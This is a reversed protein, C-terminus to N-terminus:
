YYNNYLRKLPDIPKGNEWIEFHLYKNDKKGIIGIKEGKKIKQGIEAYIKDLGQYKSQINEHHIIIFNGKLKEYGIDEVIGNDIAVVEEDYPKIDIGSNNITINSSKEIRGFNRYLKGAIPKEVNTELKDENLNFVNINNNSKEKLGKFFEVISKSNEIFDYDYKVTKDVLEVARQTNSTDIKKLVIICLIIIICVIIKKLQSLYFNKNKRNYYYNNRKTKKMRYPLVGKRKM